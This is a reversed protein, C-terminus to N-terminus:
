GHCRGRGCIEIDTGIESLCHLIINGTTGMSKEMWCHKFPCLDCYTKFLQVSAESVLGAVIETKATGDTMCCGRVNKALLVEVKALLGVKVGGGKVIYRNEIGM